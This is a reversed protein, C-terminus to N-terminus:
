AEVYGPSKDKNDILATLASLREVLGHTICVSVLFAIDAGADHKTKTKKLAATSIKKHFPSNFLQAQKNQVYRLSALTFGITYFFQRGIAIYSSQKLPNDLICSKFFM